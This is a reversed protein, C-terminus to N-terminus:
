GDAAVKEKAGKKDAERRKEEKERKREKEARKEREKEEKKREKELKKSSKGRRCMDAAHERLFPPCCSYLSSSSSSPVCMSKEDDFCRPSVVPSRGPTPPQPTSPTKVRTASSIAPLSLNRGAGRTVLM